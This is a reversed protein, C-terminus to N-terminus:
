RRWTWADSAYQSELGAAEALVESADAGAPAVATWEQAWPRAAAAIAAAAEEFAVRRGLVRALPAEQGEPAEGLSVRRVLDQDDELLLSGHQLFATGQRYQASGVVKRGEVVVEGGAPQAFCAGADVAAHRAPAPALETAAGLARLAVALAAHIARYTQPLSGFAASPAAVAYTLERAHWVARGGTPRRVVDLGLAAIAARDYRRAAPEHRGFSLCHPEWRYLRLWAEGAREARLLLAHDVAMNRRGPHPVPDLWLRFAPLRSPPFASPAGSDIRTGEAEEAM